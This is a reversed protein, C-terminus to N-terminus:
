KGFMQRAIAANKNEIGKVISSVEKMRKAATKKTFMGKIFTTPNSTLTRKKANKEGSAPVSVGVGQKLGAGLVSAKRPTPM